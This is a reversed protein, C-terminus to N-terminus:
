GGFSRSACSTLGEQDIMRTWANLTHTLAMCWNWGDRLLNELNHLVGPVGDQRLFCRRGLLTSFQSQYLRQRRSPVVPRRVLAESCFCGFGDVTPDVAAGGSRHPQRFNWSRNVLRELVTFPVVVLQIFDLGAGEAWSVPFNLSFSVRLPALVLAM